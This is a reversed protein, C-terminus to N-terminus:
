SVCPAVAWTVDQLSLGLRLINLAANHDRHTSFGCTCRHWRQSLEKAVLGGCQSCGQSTYGAAVRVVRKGAEAAKSSLVEVFGGWAADTICRALHHNKVMGQVNLNEVFIWDYRNVLGRAVKHHFDARQRRIQRHCQALRVQAKRRNKGGEKKRALARQLRKLKKLSQQLPRPNEIREGDSTTLFSEIGVDIGVATQPTVPEPDPLECVLVAFWQDVERKLTCTKVTGEIPRHLVIKLDGIKSLHLRNGEVRFGFQPYTFSDYRDKGKFRPYGAKGNREKVRRFFGAFARDVRCIVDSLVQSYVEEFEPCQAKLAPLEAMQSNKSLSKKHILYVTRRQELAANYLRHCLDLTRQLRAAQEPTPYLRYKFAKMM